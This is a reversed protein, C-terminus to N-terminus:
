GIVTGKFDKGDLINELNEIDKGAACIVKIGAKQARQSAIPDFPTNKGPVWETGVIKIFDEWSISDIPNAEPNKKPDDTYVKAINSLNVVLEGSFREALVVADNDTSFGPKWGAAVLIQGGFMDVTTPDYVVPNPCLDEFVAKVLQANLRTAMIGIWDAEDNKASAKRLDCVTRYTNQYERAPAGGGIVMIIKRSSDQSLWTRITKSFKDLFDFDPKDPAVISGGVSLVTVM